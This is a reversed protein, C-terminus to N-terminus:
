RTAPTSAQLELTWGMLKQLVALREEPSAQLFQARDMDLRLWPAFETVSSASSAVDVSPAACPTLSSPPNWAPVSSAGAQAPSVSLTPGGSLGQPSVLPGLGRTLSPRPSASLAYVARPGAFTSAGATASREMLLRVVDVAAPTTAAPASASLSAAETVYGSPASHLLASANKLSWGDKVLHKTAVVGALEEYSFRSTRGERTGRGILGEQIYHRVLRASLPKDQPRLTQLVTTATAVLEDFTGTWTLYDLPWRKMIDISATTNVAM